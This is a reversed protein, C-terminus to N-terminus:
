EHQTREYEEIIGASVRGRDSVSHGNSRAWERIAGLDRTTAATTTNDRTRRGSTRRAASVFPAVASRLQEANETSLDIEYSVGDLSFRITTAEELISGDLDDTIQTLQRQAM